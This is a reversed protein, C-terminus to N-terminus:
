TGLDRNSVYGSIEYFWVVIFMYCSSWPMTVEWEGTVCWSLFVVLYV